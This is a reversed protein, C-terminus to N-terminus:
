LIDWYYEVEDFLDCLVGGVGFDDVESVWCFYYSFDYLMVQFVLYYVDVVRWYIQGM